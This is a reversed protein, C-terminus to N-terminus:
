DDVVKLPVYNPNQFKLTNGEFDLKAKLHQLDVTALLCGVLGYTPMIQAAIFLTYRQISIEMRIM